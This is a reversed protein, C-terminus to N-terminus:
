VPGSLLWGFNGEVAIFAENETIVIQGAILQGYYYNGIIIDVDIKQHNCRDVLNLGKLEPPIKLNKMM